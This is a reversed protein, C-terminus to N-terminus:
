YKLTRILHFRNIGSVKIITLENDNSLRYFVFISALALTLPTLFPILTPLLLSTLSLFSVFSLGNSTVYEIFRLSTILWILSIFFLTIYLFTSTIQKFIYNSIIKM